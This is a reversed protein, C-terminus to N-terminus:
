LLAGKVGTFYFSAAQKTAEDYGNSELGKQSHFLVGGYALTLGIIKAYNPDQWYPGFKNPEKSVAPKYLHSRMVSLSEAMGYLWKPWRPGPLDVRPEHHSVFDLITSYPWPNNPNGIDGYDGSDRLYWNSPPPVIGRRPANGNKFPENETEYFCFHHIYSTFKNHFDQLGILSPGFMMSHDDDGQTWDVYTNYEACLSLFPDILDFNVQDPTQGFSNGPDSVRFVRNTIPGFYGARDAIERHEILTPRVLAEMGNPMCARKFDGFCSLGAYRFEGRGDEYSFFDGTALIRPLSPM